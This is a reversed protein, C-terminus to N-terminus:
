SGLNGPNQQGPIVGKTPGAPVVTVGSGGLVQLAADAAGPAPATAQGNTVGAQPQPQDTAAAAELKPMQPIFQDPDLREDARRYTERLLSELSDAISSLMQAGLADGAMQSKLANARYQAIQLVMQQTQPLLVAWAQQQALLNPKGTSGGQIDVDLMEYLEDRSEQLSPWAAGEGAIRTVDAAAFIQLCMELTYKALESLMDELVDIRSSLRNINGKEQIEAETATKATFVAGRDADQIGSVLMLDARIPATDYLALDVHPYSLVGVLNEIPKDPQPNNVPILENTEPETLKKQTATDSIVQSDVVRAPMARRRHTRFRSRAECFEDQLDVWDEVDSAPWKRGDIWNTAYLFYPYFRRAVPDPSFPARVYGDVGDLVTYVTQDQKSWIEYVCLFVAQEGTPSDNQERGTGGSHRETYTKAQSLKEASLGFKERAQEPTYWIREVIASAWRYDQLDALDGLVILNEAQVVDYILGTAVTVQLRQELAAINDRISARAAEQTQLAAQDDKIQEILAEIHIIQQRADEIERAIEPDPGTATQVGVKIWGVGTTLTSRIQRRIQEKLKAERWEHQVVVRATRAFRKVVQYRAPSASEAPRVSVEPDRAYIHPILTAMTSKILNTRVSYKELAEGSAYGRLKEWKQYLNENALLAEDIKKVWEKAQAIELLHAEDQTRKKAM